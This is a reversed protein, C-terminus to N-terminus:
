PKTPFLEAMKDQVEADTLETTPGDGTWEVNSLTAPGNPDVVNFGNAETALEPRCNLVAFCLRDIDNAFQSKDLDSLNFNSM